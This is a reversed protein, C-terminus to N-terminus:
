KVKALAVLPRNCLQEAIPQAAARGEFEVIGSFFVLFIFFAVLGAIVLLIGFVLIAPQPERCEVVRPEEGFDRRVCLDDHGFAFSLGIVIAGPIYTVM